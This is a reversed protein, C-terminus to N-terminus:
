IDNLGMSVLAWEIMEYAIQRNKHQSREWGCVAVLGTPLHTVRIPYNSCGVHQGGVSVPRVVEILLDSEKM